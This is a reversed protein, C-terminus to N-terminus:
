LQSALYKLKAIFQPLTKVEEQPVPIEIVLTIEPFQEFMIENPEVKGNLKHPNGHQYSPIGDTM